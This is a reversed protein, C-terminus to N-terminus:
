DISLTLEFADMDKLERCWEYHSVGVIGTNSANSQYEYGEILDLQQEAIYQLCAELAEEKTPYHGISRRDGTCVLVRESVMEVHEAHESLVYWDAASNEENWRCAQM